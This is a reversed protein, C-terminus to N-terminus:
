TVFSISNKIKGDNDQIFIETVAPDISIADEAQIEFPDLGLMITFSETEEYAGDDTIDVNFCHRRPM